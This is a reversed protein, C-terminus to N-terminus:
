VTQNFLLEYRELKSTVEGAELWDTFDKVKTNNIDPLEIVKIKIKIAHLRTAISQAHKQGKRGKEEPDKDAIIIANEYGELYQTHHDQWNGAGMPNTTVTFGWKRLNDVDKEGECIYIIKQAKGVLVEPLRYIITELKDFWVAGSANAECKKYDNGMKIYYGASLGHIFGDEFPRRQPFEKNETRLVQFSLKGEADHYDYTITM